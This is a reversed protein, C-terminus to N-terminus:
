LDISLGFGFYKETKLVLESIPIRGNIFSFGLRWTAFYPKAELGVQLARDLKWNREELSSLDVAAYWGVGRSSFATPAEYEIGGQVRLPKQFDAFMGYGYGGEGYIRWQGYVLSSAAFVEDRSYSNDSISSTVETKDGLHSSTHHMGARLFLHDTAQFSLAFGYKGDWAITDNWHKLDVLGQYGGFLSLQAMPRKDGPLYLEALSAEGGARLMYRDSGSRDIDNHSVWIREIGLTLRQPDAIYQPYIRKSSFFRIDTGVGLPIEPPGEEAFVVTERCLLILIFGAFISFKSSIPKRDDGGSIGFM